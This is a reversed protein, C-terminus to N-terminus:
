NCLCKKYPGCARAQYGCVGGRTGCVTTCDADTTCNNCGVIARAEPQPLCLGTLALLILVLFLRRM